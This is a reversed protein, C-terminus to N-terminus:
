AAWVGGQIFVFADGSYFFLVISARSLDESRKCLVHKAYSVIDYVTSYVNRIDYVTNYAKITCM